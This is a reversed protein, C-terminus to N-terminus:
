FIVLALPSMHIRPPIEFASWTIGVSAATDTTQCQPLIAALLLPLLWCGAPAVRTGGQQLARLMRPPRRCVEGRARQTRPRVTCRQPDSPVM